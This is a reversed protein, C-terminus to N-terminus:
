QLQLQTHMLILILVPAALLAEQLYILFLSHKLM